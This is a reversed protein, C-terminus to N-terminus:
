LRTRRSVNLFKGDEERSRRSLSRDTSGSFLHKAEEVRSLSTTAKKKKILM